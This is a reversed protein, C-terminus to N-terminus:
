QTLLAERAKSFFYRSAAVGNGDNQRLEPSSVQKIANREYPLIWGAGLRM